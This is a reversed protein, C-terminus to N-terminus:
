GLGLQYSWVWFIKGLRLIAEAFAMLGLWDSICQAWWLMSTLFLLSWVPRFDFDWYSFGVQPNWFQLFKWFFRNPLHHFSLKIKPRKSHGWFVKKTFSIWCQNPPCKKLDRWLSGAQMLHIQFEWYNMLLAILKLNRGLTPNQGWSLIFRKPIIQDM